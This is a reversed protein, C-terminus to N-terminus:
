SGKVKALTIKKKQAEDFTQFQKKLGQFQHVGRVLSLGPLAEGTARNVIYASVIGMVSIKSDFIYLTPGSSVGNIAVGDVVYAKNEKSYASVRGSFFCLDHPWVAPFGLWGVEVGVRIRKGETILTPQEDTLILGSNLADLTM